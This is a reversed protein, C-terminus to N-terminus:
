NARILILQLSPFVPLDSLSPNVLLGLSGSVSLHKHYSSRVAISLLFSHVSGTGVVGGMDGAQVAIAIGTYNYGGGVYFSSRGLRKEIMISARVLGFVPGLSAGFDNSILYSPMLDDSRKLFHELKIGLFFPLGTSLGLYFNKRASDSNAISEQVDDYNKLSYLATPQNRLGQGSIAETFFLFSIVAYLTISLRSM